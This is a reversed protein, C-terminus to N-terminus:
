RRRRPPASRGTSCARIRLGLDGLVGLRAAEPGALYLVPRVRRTRQARAARRHHRWRRLRRRDARRDGGGGASNGLSRAPYDIYVPKRAAARLAPALREALAAGGRGAARDVPHHRSRRGGAEDAAQMGAAQARAVTAASRGDLLTPVIAGGETLRRAGGNGM